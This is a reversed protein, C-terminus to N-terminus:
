ISNKCIHFLMACVCAGIQSTDTSSGSLNEVCGMVINKIRVNNKWGCLFLESYIFILHNGNPNPKLTNVCYESQEVSYARRWRSHQKAKSQKDEKKLKHRDNAVISENETDAVFSFVQYVNPMRTACLTGLHARTRTHTNQKLIQDLDQKREECRFYTFM